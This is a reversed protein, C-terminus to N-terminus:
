EGAGGVVAVRPFDRKCDELRDLLRDTVTELLPDQETALFAARDRHRAKLPRVWPMPYTIMMSLNVNRLFFIVYGDFVDIEGAISSAFGRFVRGLYSLTVRSSSLM